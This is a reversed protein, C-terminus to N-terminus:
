SSTLWALPSGSEKQLGAESGPLQGECQGQLARACGPHVSLWAQQLRGLCGWAPRVSLRSIQLPLGLGVRRLAPASLCLFSPGASLWTSWLQLGHAQPTCEGQLARSPSVQPPGIERVETSNQPERASFVVGM